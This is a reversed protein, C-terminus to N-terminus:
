EKGREKVSKVEDGDMSVFEVGDKGLKKVVDDWDDPKVAKTGESVVMTKFGEKAADQATWKVCYDMALGVVFVHSVEQKRLMEALGSDCVRPNKFLGYFGSYQEVRQDQGKKIEHEIKSVDFEPIFEGGPTNQICHDPWLFTSIKENPNEPNTIEAYSEFPKNDPPPHQSAFSIHNEPHFDRTAVRTVFPMSLLKNIVPAVTRGDSM